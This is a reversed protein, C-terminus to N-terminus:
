EPNISVGQAIPSVGVIKCVYNGHCRINNVLAVTNMSQKVVAMSKSM